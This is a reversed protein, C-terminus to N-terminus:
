TKKESEVELYSVLNSWLGEGFQSRNIKKNYFDKRLQEFTNKFEEFNSSKKRHKKNQIERTIYTRNLEEHCELCLNMTIETKPKLFNPICHHLTKKRKKSNFSKHCCPCESYNLNIGETKNLKLEM